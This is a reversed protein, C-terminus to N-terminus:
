DGPKDKRAMAAKYRAVPNDFIKLARALTPEHLVIFSSTKSTDAAIDRVQQQLEHLVTDIHDLQHRIDELTISETFDPVTETIGQIDTMHTVIYRAPPYFLRHM